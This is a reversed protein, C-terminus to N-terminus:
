CGSSSRASCWGAVLLAVVFGVLLLRDADIVAYAIFTTIM